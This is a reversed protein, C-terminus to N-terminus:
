KARRAVPHQRPAQEFRNGLVLPAYRLAITVRL